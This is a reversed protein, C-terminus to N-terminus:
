PAEMLFTTLFNSIVWLALYTLGKLPFSDTLLTAVPMQFHLDVFLFIAPPAYMSEVAAATVALDVM